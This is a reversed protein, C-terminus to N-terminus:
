FLLFYYYYFAVVVIVFRVILYFFCLFFCCVYVVVSLISKGKRCFAVVSYAPALVYNNELPSLMADSYESFPLVQLASSFASFLLDPNLPPPLNGYVIYCYFPFCPVNGLRKYEEVPKTLLPLLFEKLNDVSFLSVGDPYQEVFSKLNSYLIFNYFTLLFLVDLTEPDGSSFGDQYM